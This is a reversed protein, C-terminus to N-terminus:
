PQRLPRLQMRFKRPERFNRRGDPLRRAGAMSARHGIRSARSRSHTLALSYPPTRAWRDVLEVGGARLVAAARRRRPM